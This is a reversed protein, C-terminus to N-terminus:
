TRKAALAIQCIHELREVHEFVTWADKGVAVIGHRDLGIIDYTTKGTSFDLGIAEVAAHGLQESIPPIMPVTPGVKTYRNIEPFERSLEQLDLGAYMAAIIYTPHLHLVVRNSPVLVQLLAHLPLEGTPELGVIKRQYDDDVRFLKDWPKSHPKIGTDDTFQLKVIMEANLHQKRVGSPTVYLFSDNQRRFSANGDRTSIWGREYAAKLVDCMTDLM